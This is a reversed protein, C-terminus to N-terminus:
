IFHNHVIHIQQWKRLQKLNNETRKLKKIRKKQEERTIQHSDKNHKSEKIKCVYTYSSYIKTKESGHSKYKAIM